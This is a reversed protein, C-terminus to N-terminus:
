KDLIERSYIRSVVNFNQVTWTLDPRRAARNVLHGYNMTITSLEARKVKRM